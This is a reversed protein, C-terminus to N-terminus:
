KEDGCREQYANWAATRYKEAAEAVDGAETIGRGVIVIDAGREKVAKEPSVYQQGLNDGSADLHVGPTFQILDAAASMRSQGVYGFLFSGDECLKM